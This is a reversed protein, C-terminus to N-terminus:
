SIRVQLVLLPHVYINDGSYDVSPILKQLESSPTFDGFDDIVAESEAEVFLVGEGNCHIEFRGNEDKRLRGAVPYFLVLVNSLAEKLVQTDFFTPSGNPRYFYVTPLHVRAVLLDLDSSWLSHKPTDQSPCVISSEKVNIKM